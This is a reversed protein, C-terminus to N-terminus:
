EEGEEEPETEVRKIGDEERAKTYGCDLKLCAWRHMEPEYVLTHAECKPCKDYCM